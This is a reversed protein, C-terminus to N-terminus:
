LEQLQDPVSLQVSAARHANLSHVAAASPDGGGLEEQAAAAPVATALSAGQGGRGWLRAVRLM